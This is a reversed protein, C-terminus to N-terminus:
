LNYSYITRYSELFEPEFFLSKRGGFQAHGKIQARVCIVGYNTLSSFLCFLFEETPQKHVNLVNVATSLHIPYFFVILIVHYLM